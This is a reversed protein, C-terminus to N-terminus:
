KKEQIDIKIKHYKKLTKILFKLDQYHEELIKKYQLIHNLSYKQFDDIILKEIRLYEKKIEFYRRLCLEQHNEKKIQKKTKKSEFM